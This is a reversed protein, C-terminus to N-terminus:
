LRDLWSGYYRSYVQNLRRQLLWATLSAGALWLILTLAFTWRNLWGIPVILFIFEFYAITFLTACLPWLLLSILGVQMPTLTRTM